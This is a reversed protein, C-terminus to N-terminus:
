WRIQIQIIGLFLNIEEYEFDPEPEMYGLGFIFSKPFLVIINLEFDTM